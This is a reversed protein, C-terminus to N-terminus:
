SDRFTGKSVEELHELHEMPRNPLPIYSVVDTIYYHGEIHHFFQSLYYIFSPNIGMCLVPMMLHTLCVCCRASEEWVGARGDPTPTRTPHVARHQDNANHNGLRPLQTMNQNPAM